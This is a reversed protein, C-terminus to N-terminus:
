FSASPTAPLIAKVMKNNRFIEFFFPCPTTPLLAKEM